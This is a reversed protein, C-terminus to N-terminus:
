RFFMMMHLFYWYRPPQKGQIKVKPYLNKKWLPNPTLTQGWHQDADPNLMKVYYATKSPFLKYIEVFKNYFTTFHSFTLPASTWLLLLFYWCSQSYRWDIFEILCWFSSVKYIGYKTWTTGRKLLISRPGSLTSSRHSTPSPPRSSEVGTSTWPSSEPRPCSRTSCRCWRSGRGASSINRFFLLFLPLFPFFYPTKNCSTHHALLGKFFNFPM